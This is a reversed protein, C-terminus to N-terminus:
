RRDGFMSTVFKSTSKISGIKIAPGYPREIAFVDYITTGVPITRIMNHLYDSFTDPFMKSVESSPSYIVRYPFKMKDEDIEQGKEDFQALDKLGLRGTFRTARSFAAALGKIKFTTADPLHNSWDCSFPNWSYQGEANYMVLLNGSPVNDRLIKLAAAPNFNTFPEGKPKSETATAFRLLANKAGQFVGTYPSDEEAIFEVRGVVGTSHTLKNKGAPHVDSYIEFTTKYNAFFLGLQKFISHWGFSNSDATIEQWLQDSKQQATQAQYVAGSFRDDVKDSLALVLCLQLILIAKM